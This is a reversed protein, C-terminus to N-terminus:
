RVISTKFGTGGFTGHQTLQCMVASALARCGRHAEPKGNQRYRNAGIPEPEVKAKLAADPRLL